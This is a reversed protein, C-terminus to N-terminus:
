KIEGTLTEDGRGPLAAHQAMEADIFVALMARYVQETVRVNAGAGASQALTLSIPIGCFSLLLPSSEISNGLRLGPTRRHTQGDVM